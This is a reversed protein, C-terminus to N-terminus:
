NIWRSIGLYLCKCHGYITLSTKPDHLNLYNTPSFYLPYIKYLTVGTFQMRNVKVLFNVMNEKHQPSIYM